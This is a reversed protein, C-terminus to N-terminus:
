GCQLWRAVEEGPLPSGLWTSHRMTRGLAPIAAQWAVLGEAHRAMVKVEVADGAALVAAPDFPLFAQARRIPKDVLPSNTMRVDGALTCDFWGALGHMTGGRQATLTASWTFFDPPDRTLDIAGLAAPASLLQGRELFAPHIRNTSLSRVWHFESPVESGRWADALQACDASEVAAAFLELRAPLVVGGPALVRRRADQVLGVVGYDIGFWGVHDCVAVDVAEPLVVRECRESYFSARDALGCRQLTERAVELLPGDDVFHVRSAGSKLALLGLVGTGCGLDAVRDGPRVVRAIAAGYRELRVADSVYGLHEALPSGM